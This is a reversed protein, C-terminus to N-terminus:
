GKLIFLDGNFGEWKIVPGGNGIRITKQHGTKYKCKDEKEVKLYPESKIDEAKFDSYVEGNFTEIMFEASPKKSFFLHVDGNLSGVTGDQDPNREFRVTVDKNLGYIKGVNRISEAKIGGNINNASCTGHIDQIEINGDNVTKIDLDTEYPVLIHFTYTVRYRNPHYHNEKHHDRFPGDVYFEILDEEESIDLTVEQLAKQFQEPSRAWINKHIEVAISKERHGHIRVSGWVNDVILTKTPGSGHFVLTKTITEEATQEKSFGLGVVFFILSLVIITKLKKQM